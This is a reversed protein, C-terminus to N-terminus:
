MISDYADMHQRASVDWGLEVDVKARISEKMHLRLSEDKALAIMATALEEVDNPPIILGTVGDQVNEHISGVRTVIVPKGFSYALALIGSQSGDTYPLVVIQAKKFYVAVEEDPVERNDLMVWDNNEQILPLYSSADGSGAISLTYEPLEAHVQPFARLLVELGKYGFIRGFFLFNKEEKVESEGANTWGNGVGHIAVHVKRAYRPYREIFAERLKDGHVMVANAKGVIYKRSFSSYWLEEGVHASVDHLTQVIKRKGLFPVVACLVPHLDQIHVIDPNEKRIELVMRMLGLMYRPDYRHFPLDIEVSKVDPCMYGSTGKPSFITVDCYKSLANGLQSTYHCIGKRSITIMCVKM